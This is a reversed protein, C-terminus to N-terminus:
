DQVGWLVARRFPLAVMAADRTHENSPGGWGTMRKLQEADVKGGKDRPSVGQAEIGMLRSTAEILQCWADIQGVNRAIKAVAARSQAGHWVHSQLRSDEFVVLDPALAGLERQIEVPTITRLEVLAGSRYIAVGTKQGPDIGVIM